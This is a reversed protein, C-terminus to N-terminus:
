RMEEGVPPFLEGTRKERNRVKQSHSVSEIKQASQSAEIKQAAFPLFFCM